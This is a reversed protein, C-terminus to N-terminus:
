TPVDTARDMPLASTLPINPPNVLLYGFWCSFRRLDPRPRLTDCEEMRPFFMRM